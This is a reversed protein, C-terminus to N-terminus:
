YVREFRKVFQPGERKNNAHRKDREKVLNSMKNDYHDYRFRYKDRTKLHARAESFYKNWDEISL